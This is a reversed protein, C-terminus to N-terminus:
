PAEERQGRRLGDGYSAVILGYNADSHEVKGENVLRDYYEDCMVRIDDDSLRFVRNLWMGTTNAVKPPEPKYYAM